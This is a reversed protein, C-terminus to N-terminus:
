DGRAKTEEDTLLAFAPRGYATIHTLPQIYVNGPGPMAQYTSLIHCHNIIREVRYDQGEGRHVPPLLAPSKQPRHPSGSQPSSKGEEQSEGSKRGGSHIILLLSSVLPYSYRRKREPDRQGGSPAKLIGPSCWEAKTWVRGGAQRNWKPVARPILCSGKGLHKGM